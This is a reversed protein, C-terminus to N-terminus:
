TKKDCPLLTEVKLENFVADSKQHKPIIFHFNSGIADKLTQCQQKLDKIEAKLDEKSRTEENEGSVKDSKSLSTMSIVKAKLWVSGWDGFGWGLGWVISIVLPSIFTSTLLDSIRSSGGVSDGNDISSKENIKQDFKEIAQSYVLKRNKLDASSFDIVKQSISSFIANKELEEDALLKQKYAIMQAAIRRQEAKHILKEAREIGEILGDIRGRQYASDISTKDENLPQSVKEIEIKNHKSNKDSGTKLKLVLATSEKDTLSKQKLSKKNISTQSKESSENKESFKFKSSERFPDSASPPEEIPSFEVSSESAGLPEKTQSM